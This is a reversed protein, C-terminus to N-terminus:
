DGPVVQGPPAGNGNGRPPLVVPVEEGYSTGTVVVELVYIDRDREPDEGAEGAHGPGPLGRQHLVDQVAAEGVQEVACARDPSVVLFDQADLMYILDNIYVLRGDAARRAGVRGGVGTDEVPDASEERLRRLGPHAAVLGAPEGEVHPSTPALGAAAVADDLDLHM